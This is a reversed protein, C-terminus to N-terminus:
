SHDDEALLVVFDDGVCDTIGNLGWSAVHAADTSGIVSIVVALEGKDVGSTSEDSLQRVDLELKVSVVEVKSGLSVEV